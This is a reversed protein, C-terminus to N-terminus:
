SVPKQFNLDEQVLIVGPLTNMLLNLKKIIRRLFRLSSNVVLNQDSLNLVMKFFKEIIIFYPNTFTLIRSQFM